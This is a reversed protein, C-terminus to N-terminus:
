LNIRLTDSQKLYLTHPLATDSIGKRYCWQSNVTFVTASKGDIAAIFHWFITFPIGTLIEWLGLHCSVTLKTDDCFLLVKVKSFSYGSFKPM